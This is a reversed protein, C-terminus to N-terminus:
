DNKEKRELKSELQEIRRDYVEFIALMRKAINIESYITMLTDQAHAFLVSYEATEGTTEATIADTQVHHAQVIEENARKMESKALEFDSVEIAKLANMCHKRADGAHLIIQMAQQVVQEKVM